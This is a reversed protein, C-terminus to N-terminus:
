AAPKEDAAEDERSRLSVRGTGEVHMSWSVIGNPENPEFRLQYTNWDGEHVAQARLMVDHEGRQEVYRIEIGGTRKHLRTFVGIRAEMGGNKLASRAYHKEIFGRVVKEEGSNIADVFALLHQGIAGEPIVPESSASALPQEDQDSAPSTPASGSAVVVAGSSLRQDFQDISTKIQTQLGEFQSEIRQIATEADHKRSELQAIAPEIQDQVRELVDGVKTRVEDVHGRIVDDPVPAAAAGFEAVASEIRSASIQDIRKELDNRLEVLRLEIAPLHGDLAVRAQDTEARHSEIQNLADDIRTRFQEIQEQLAPVAAMQAALAETQADRISGTQATQAEFAATHQEIRRELEGLQEQQGEVRAAVADFRDDVGGAATSLRQEVADRWHSVEEELERRLDAVVQEDVSPPRDQLEALAPQIQEEIQESTNKVRSQIREVLEQLAAVTSAHQEVAALANDVSRKAQDVDGEIPDVRAEVAGLASKVQDLRAQLEALQSVATDDAAIKALHERLEGVQKELNAVAQDASRRALALDDALPEVQQQLSGVASAIQAGAEDFRRELAANLENVAGDLRAQLSTSREDIENVIPEVRSEVDGLASQLRALQAQLDSLQTVVHEPPEPTSADDIREDLASVAASAQDILTQLQLAVDNVVGQDLVRVNLLAEQQRGATSM